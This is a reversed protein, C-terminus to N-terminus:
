FRRGLQVGLLLIAGEGVPEGETKVNFEFGFAVTPSLIWDSKLFVYGAELTPQLVTIKTHGSVEDPQGIRDKWDLENWWVDNRAGIFFGEHGSRFYRKYGVSFGKGDGREDEHRGQDRHRVWNYGARLHFAYHTKVAQELRIGPILGTPYAQFEVSFDTQGYFATTLFLAAWTLLSRMKFTIGFKMKM